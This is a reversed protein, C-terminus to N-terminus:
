DVKIRFYGDEPNKEFWIKTYKYIIEKGDPSWFFQNSWQFNIGLTSSYEVHGGGLAILSVKEKLTEYIFINGHDSFVARLSDPSWAPLATEIGSKILKKQRTKLDYIYLNGLQFDGSTFEFSRHFFLHRNNPAITPGAFGHKNIDILVPDEKTKNGKRSWELSYAQGDFKSIVEVHGDPSRITLSDGDRKSKENMLLRETKYWEPLALVREIEYRPDISHNPMYIDGKAAVGNALLTVLFLASTKLYVNSLTFM